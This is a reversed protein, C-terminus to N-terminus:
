LAVFLLGSIVVEAHSIVWLTVSCLDTRRDIQMSKQIDKYITYIVHMHKYTQLHRIQKMSTHILRRYFHICCYTTVQTSAPTPPHWCQCCAEHIVLLFLMCQMNMESDDQSIEWLDKRSFVDTLPVPINNSSEQFYSQNVTRINTVLFQLVWVKGAESEVSVGHLLFPKSKPVQTIYLCDEIIWLNRYVWCFTTRGFVTRRTFTFIVGINFNQDGVLLSYLM